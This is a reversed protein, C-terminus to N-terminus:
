NRSVYSPEQFRTKCVYASFIKELSVKALVDRLHRSKCFPIELVLNHKLFGSNCFCVCRSSPGSKSFTLSKTLKQQPSYVISVVKPHREIILFLYFIFLTIPEKKAIKNWIAAFLRQLSKQNKLSITKLLSPSPLVLTSSLCLRGIKVQRFLDSIYHERQM